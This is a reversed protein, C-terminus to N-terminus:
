RERELNGLVIHGMTVVHGKVASCVTLDADSKFLQWGAFRVAAWEALRVPSVGTLLASNPGSPDLTEQGQILAPSHKEGNQWPEIQDRNERPSSIRSRKIEVCLKPVSGPIGSLVLSTSREGRQSNKM